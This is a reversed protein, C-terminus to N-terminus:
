HKILTYIDYLNLFNFIMKTDCKDPVVATGQEFKECYFQIIDKM